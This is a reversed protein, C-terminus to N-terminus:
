YYNKSDNGVCGRSGSSKKGSSNRQAAAAAARQRASEAEAAAKAAAEEEEKTLEADTKIKGLTRSTSKIINAIDAESEAKNIEEESDALVAKIKKQQEKRYDDMSVLENLKQVGEERMQALTKVDAILANAEELAEDVQQQKESEAIKRESTDIISSIERQQAESYDELSISDNLTKIGADRMEKIKNNHYWAAGAVCAAIAVVVIITVIVTKKM